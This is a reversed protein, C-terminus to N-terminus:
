LLSAQGGTMRCKNNAADALGVKKELAHHNGVPHAIYM